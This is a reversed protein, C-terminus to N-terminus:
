IGEEGTSIVSSTQGSIGTLKVHQLVDDIEFPKSLIHANLDETREKLNELESGLAGTIIVAKAEPTMQRIQELTEVGDIGPMVADIFVLDYPSNRVKEIAMFGTSTTVVKHGERTLLQYMLDLVTQEDDVVLINLRRPHNACDAQQYCESDGDPLVQSEDSESHEDYMPLIITFVSGSGVESEVKIEGGLDKILGYSLSLGLGTGEEKGAGISGKTTFFPEFIRELNERTIGVGSDTIRLHIENGYVAASVNLKGGSPMAHKANIILNLLVQQLQGVDTQFRFGADISFGVEINRKQLDREVLSLVQSVLKDVRIVETEHSTRRSFTLLNTIIEKARKSSTFVVDIAKEYDKTESTSSALQAYGMMGGILNNFEHAIGAALTGIGAMKESQILRNKLMLIETLDQFIVITGKARGNSEKLPALSYGITIKKKDKLQYSLANRGVLTKYNWSDQNGPEDIREGFFDQHLIGVMEKQDTELIKEAASNALLILGDLDLVLIGSPINEVIRENLERLVDLNNEVKITSTIDDIQIMAMNKISGNDLAVIKINWYKKERGSVFFQVRPLDISKVERSFIRGLSCNLNDAEYFTPSLVERIDKGIYDECTGHMEGPVRNMDLITCKSDVFLITSSIRQFVIDWEASPISGQPFDQGPLNLDPSDTISHPKEGNGKPISNRNDMSNTQTM